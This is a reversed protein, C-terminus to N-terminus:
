DENKLGCSLEGNDKQRRESILTPTVVKKM